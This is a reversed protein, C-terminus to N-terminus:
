CLATHCVSLCVCSRAGTAQWGCVVQGHLPEPAIDDRSPGVQEGDVYLRASTGDLGLTIAVHHYEGDEIRESTLASDVSGLRAVIRRDTYTM